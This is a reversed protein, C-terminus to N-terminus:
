GIKTVEPTVTVIGELVRTKTALNIHQVEVDYVYRGPLLNSTVENNASITLAGADLGCVFEISDTHYYSQRMESNVSYTDGSGLTWPTTSDPSSYVETTFSFDTGQDIM